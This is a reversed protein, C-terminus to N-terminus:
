CRQRILMMRFPILLGNDILILFLLIIVDISRFIIRGLTLLVDINVICVFSTIVDISRLLIINYLDTNKSM